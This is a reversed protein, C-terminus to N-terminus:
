CPLIQHIDGFAEQRIETSNKYNRADMDPCTIAGLEILKLNIGGPNPPDLGM